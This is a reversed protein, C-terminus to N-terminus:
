SKGENRIVEEMFELYRRGEEQWYSGTNPFEGLIRRLAEVALRPRRRVEAEEFFCDILNLQRAFGTRDVYHPALFAVDFCDLLQSRVALVPRQEIRPDLLLALWTEVNLATMWYPEEYVRYFRGSIDFAQQVWTDVEDAEVRRSMQREDIYPCIEISRIGMRDLVPLGELRCMLPRHTYLRCCGKEKAQLRCKANGPYRGEPEMPRTVFDILEERSWQTLLGELLYAFEALTLHPTVCCLGCAICPVDPLETFLAELDPFAERLKM